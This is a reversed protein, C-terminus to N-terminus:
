ASAPVLRDLSETRLTYGQGLLTLTTHSRHTRHAHTIHTYPTHINSQTTSTHPTHVIHTYVLMATIGAQVGEHPCWFLVPGPALLCGVVPYQQKPNKKKKGIRYGVVYAQAQPAKGGDSPVSYSNQHPPSTVKSVSVMGGNETIYALRLLAVRLAGPAVLPRPVWTVEAGWAVLLPFPCKRWWCFSARKNGPKPILILRVVPWVTNLPRFVTDLHLPLPIVYGARSEAVPDALHRHAPQLGPAPPVSARRWAAKPAARGVPESPGEMWGKSKRVQGKSIFRQFM